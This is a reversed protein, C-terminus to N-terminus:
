EDKMWGRIILAVMRPDSQALARLEALKQQYSLAKNRRKKEYIVDEPSRGDADLGDSYEDDEDDGVTARLQQGDPTALAPESQSTYFKIFPRLLLLYVLLMMLLLLLPEGLTQAMRMLEPDQWWVVAARGDDQSFPSNVVEITDGRAETFGIAQRALREVQALEEDSLPV